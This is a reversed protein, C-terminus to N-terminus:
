QAAKDLAKRALDAAGFFAGEKALPVRRPLSRELNPRIRALAPPLLRALPRSTAERTAPRDSQLLPLLADVHKEIANVPVRAM